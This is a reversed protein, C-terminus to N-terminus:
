LCGLLCTTRLDDRVNQVTNYANSGTKDTKWIGEFVMRLEPIGRCMAIDRKDDNEQKEPEDAAIQFPSRQSVRTRPHRPKPANPASIGGPQPNFPTPAPAPVPQPTEAPAPPSLTMLPRHQRTNTRSRVTPNLVQPEVQEQAAALGALLVFLGCITTRRLM